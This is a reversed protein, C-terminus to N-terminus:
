EERLEHWRQLIEILLGHIQPADAKRTTQSPSAPPKTLNEFETPNGNTLLYLPRILQANQSAPNPIKQRGKHRPGPDPPSAKHRPSGRGWM